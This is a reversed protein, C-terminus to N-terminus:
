VKEDDSDAVDGYRWIAKHAGRAEDQAFRLRDLL